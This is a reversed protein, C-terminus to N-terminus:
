PGVRGLSLLLTKIEWPALTVESQIKLRPCRISTTTKNGSREQLRLIASGSQEAQKRYAGRRQKTRNSSFVTGPNMVLM